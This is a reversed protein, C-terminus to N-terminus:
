KKSIDIFKKKDSSCIRQAAFRGSMVAPPLGGSQITYQGSLIFNKLGKIRGNHMISKGRKTHVLGQFSGHRSNLYREYTCPTVVDIIEMEDAVDPYIEKAFGLLENAVRQKEQKYTGNNKHNKWWYYMDDDSHITAQIICYDDAGKVTPDYAYNRFSIHDYARDMIVPKDVIRKEWLNKNLMRKPCKLVATTFTYIPYDRQNELKEDFIKDAFKGDLLDNLCHEIPTTSIVWDSNLEEGNKLKVGVVKHDQIRVKEVPSAKRILGGVDLYKREMRKMMELSGGEPIGGDDASIHGLMYLMSMLNYHPAMFDSILDQLHKNKFRKAYDKCSLKSTKAVWYYDGAMTFAIKLLDLLNMLEVPKVAPPNVKQFRRILKVFRKIEKEDEPAFSVLEKELKKTDKWFVLTEDGYKMHMLDDQYFVQTGDDLAGVDKWISNLHTHEKVGTMWHICGDIYCGSREWGICAGGAVANKEVIETEYGNARLYIGAAFGAVGGGIIIVKKM